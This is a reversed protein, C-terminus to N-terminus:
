LTYSVGIERRKLVLELLCLDGIKWASVQPLVLEMYMLSQGTFSDLGRNELVLKLLSFKLPYIDGMTYTEM